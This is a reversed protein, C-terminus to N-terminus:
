HEHASRDAVGRFADRNRWDAGTVDVVALQTPTDTRLVSPLEAQARLVLHGTRGLVPWQEDWGVPMASRCLGRIAPADPREDGIGTGAQGGCGVVQQGGQVPPGGPSVPRDGRPLSPLMLSTVRMRDAM